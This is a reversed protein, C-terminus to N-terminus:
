AYIGEQVHTYDRKINAVSVHEEASSMAANGEEGPKLGWVGGSCCM